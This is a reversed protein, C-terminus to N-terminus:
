MLNSLTLKLWNRTPSKMEIIFNISVMLWTNIHYFLIQILISIDIGKSMNFWVSILRYRKSVLFRPQFIPTTEKNTCPASEFTDIKSHVILIWSDDNNSMPIKHTNNRYSPGALIKGSWSATYRHKPSPINQQMVLKRWHQTQENRTSYFNVSICAITLAILSLGCILSDSWFKIFICLGVWSSVCRGGM